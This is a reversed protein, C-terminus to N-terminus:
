NEEGVISVSDQGDIENLCVQVKENKATPINKGVYDPRIPLERHGRDVLVALQISQPRGFALLAEIAARASRGTYLVDDILIATKDNLPKPIDSQKLAPPAPLVGLDDRYFAFDLTGIPLRINEFKYIEEALRKALPVGRTHVGVLVVNELGKNKEIIEHALRAITRRINEESLILKYLFGGAM